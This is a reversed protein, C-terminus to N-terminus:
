RYASAPCTAAGRAVIWVHVDSEVALREGKGGGAGEGLEQGSLAQSFAPHGHLDVALDNRAATVGPMPQRIAIHDLDDM